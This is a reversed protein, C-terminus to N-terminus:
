KDRSSLYAVRRSNTYATIDAWAPSFGQRRRTPSYVVFRGHWTDQWLTSWSSGAALNADAVKQGFANMATTYANAASILDAVIATSAELPPGFFRGRFSRGVLGTRWALMGCIRPPLDSDALTRAGAIGLGYTGAVPVESPNNPDPVTVVDISDFTYTTGLLNRYAAQLETNVEAAVATPTPDPFGIDPNTHLHLTNVVELTGLHSRFSVRYIQSM